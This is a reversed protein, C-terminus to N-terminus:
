KASWLYLPRGPTKSPSLKKDSHYEYYEIMSAEIKGSDERLVKPRDFDVFTEYELEVIWLLVKYNNQKEFILYYYGSEPAIIINNYDAVEQFSYGFRKNDDGFLAVRVDRLYNDYDILYPGKM